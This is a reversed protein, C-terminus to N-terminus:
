KFVCSNVNMLKSIAEPPHVLWVPISLQNLQIAVNLSSTITGMLSTDVLHNTFVGSLKRPFYKTLYTYCALMELFDWQCSMTTLLTMLCDQPACDLAVSTFHMSCQSHLMKCLQIEEWGHQAVPEDVKWSLAKRMATFSAM